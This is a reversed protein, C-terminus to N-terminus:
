KRKLLIANAGYQSHREVVEFTERLKRIEADMEDPTYHAQLLWFNETHSLDSTTLDIVKEQTNRFYFNFHWALGSYIPYHLSNASKVIQAVERFQDKQLRTYHQKFFALNILASLVIMVSLAYKWKYNKIKDWGIAFMLIWAPLTVITYRDHLMPTSAISRIYPLSYSFLMWLILILFVARNEAGTKIRSRFYQIFFFLFFLFLLTTVVDKGTYDYFYVAVFFPGPRKIWFTELDSDHIIIPIWPIYLLIVAVGSLFSVIIFNLNRKYIL